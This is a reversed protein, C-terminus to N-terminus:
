LSPNAGSASPLRVTHLVLSPPQSTWEKSLVCILAASCFLASNGVLQRFANHEYTVSFLLAPSEEATACGACPTAFSAIAIASPQITPGLTCTGRWMGQIEQSQVLILIGFKLNKLFLEEENKSCVLVLPYTPVVDVYEVVTGIRFVDKMTRKGM